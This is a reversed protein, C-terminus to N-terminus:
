MDARAALEGLVYDAAAPLDPMIAEADAFDGDLSPGSPIALVRMGAAAASRVGHPADELALCGGPEMGLKAATTQYIEPHPKSHTVDEGSVVAEFLSRVGLLELVHRIYRPRGSSALALRLGAASLRAVTEAAGPMPKLGDQDILTWFHAERRTFLDDPDWGNKAAVADTLDRVRRGLMTVHLDAPYALGLADFCEQNARESIAESDVLVGDM